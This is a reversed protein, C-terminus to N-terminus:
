CRKRIEWLKRWFDWLFGGIKEGTEYLNWSIGGNKLTKRRNTMRKGCKNMTKMGNEMTKGGKERSKEEEEDRGHVGPPGLAVTVFNSWPVISAPPVSGVTM